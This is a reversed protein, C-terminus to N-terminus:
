GTGIHVAPEAPGSLGPGSILFSQRQGLLFWLPLEQLLPNPLQFLFNPAATSKKREGSHRFRHFDSRFGVTLEGVKRRIFDTFTGDTRQEGPLV